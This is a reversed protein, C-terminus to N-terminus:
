EILPVYRMTECDRYPLQGILLSGKADLATWYENAFDLLTRPCGSGINKIKINSTMSDLQKILQLITYSADQVAMFDRIQQGGSMPFNDGLRAAQVLSPWFRAKDEGEGFLHFPRVVLLRLDFRNALGLAAMTAAAKSASYANTPKLPADPPIFQFDLSSLGYLVLVM